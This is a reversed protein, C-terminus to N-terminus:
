LIRKITDRMGEFSREGEYFEEKNNHSLKITPFSTYGNAEKDKGSQYQLIQVNPHNKFENKLRSFISPSGKMIVDCHPCGSMHYITFKVQKPTPNPTLPSIPKHTFDEKTIMWFNYIM